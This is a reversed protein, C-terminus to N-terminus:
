NNKYFWFLFKKLFFKSINLRKISFKLPLNLFCNETLFKRFMNLILAHWQNCVQCLWTYKENKGEAFFPMKAMLITFLFIFIFYLIFFRPFSRLIWYLICIGAARQLGERRSQSLTITKKMQFFSRRFWFALDCLHTSACSVSASGFHRLPLPTSALTPDRRRLRFAGRNTAWRRM